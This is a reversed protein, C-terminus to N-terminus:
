WFWLTFWSRLCESFPFGIIWSFMAVPVKLWEDGPCSFHVALSLLFYGQDCDGGPAPTFCPCLSLVGQVSPVSAPSLPRAVSKQKEFPSPTCNSWHISCALSAAPQAAICVVTECIVRSYLFCLHFCPQASTVEPNAGDLGM